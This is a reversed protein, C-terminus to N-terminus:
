LDIASINPLELIFEPQPPETGVDAPEREAPADEAKAAADAGPAADDVGEGAAVKQRRDRYYAHYPDAPNLFSFKPDNRQSERIKEELQAPNASKAFFAATRDIM